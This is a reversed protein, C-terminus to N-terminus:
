KKNELYKISQIKNFKFVRIVKNLDSKGIKMPKEIEGIKIGEKDIKDADPFIGTSHCKKYVMTKYKTIESKQESESLTDINNNVKTLIHSFIDNKIYLLNNDKDDVWLLSESTLNKDKRKPISDPLLKLLNELFAIHDEKLNLIEDVAVELKEIKPANKIVCEQQFLQIADKLLIETNEDHANENFLYYNENSGLQLFLNYGILLYSYIHLLDEEQKLDKCDIQKRFYKYQNQFFKKIKKRSGGFYISFITRLQETAHYLSTTLLKPKLRMNNVILQNIKLDTIDLNLIFERDIKKDSIFLLLNEFDNQLLARKIMEPRQETNIILIGDRIRAAKKQLGKQEVRSNSHFKSSISSIQSKRDYFNCFLNAFEKNSLFKNNGYVNISFKPSAFEQFHNLSTVLSLFAYSLLPVTVRKDSIDLIKLMSHFSEYPKSNDVIELGYKSNLAETYIVEDEEVSTFPVYYWNKIGEVWGIQNTYVIFPGNKIMNNVIRNFETRYNKSKILQQSINWNEGIYESLKIWFNDKSFDKSQIDIIKVRIGNKKSKVCVMRLGFIIKKNGDFFFLTHSPFIFFNNYFTHVKEKVQDLVDDICFSDINFDKHLLLTSRTIQYKDNIMLDINKESFSKNYRARIREILDPPDTFLHSARFLQEPKIM